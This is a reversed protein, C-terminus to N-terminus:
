SPSYITDFLATEKEKKNKKNMLGSKRHFATFIAFFIVCIQIINKCRRLINRYIICKCCVYKNIHSMRVRLVFRCIFFSKKCLKPTQVPRFKWSRKYKEM